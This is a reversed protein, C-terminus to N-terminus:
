PIGYTSGQGEKESEKKSASSKPYGAQDLEGALLSEIYGKMIKKGVVLTPVTLAGVEKKMEQQAAFDKEVNKETFPVDRGKLYNRAADCGPCSSISYLTVPYKHATAAANADGTSSFGYNQTTHEEVSLAGDPPVDDQYTVKGDEDVWRYTRQALVEANFLTSVLAICILLALTDNKM